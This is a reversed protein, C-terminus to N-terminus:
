RQQMVFKTRMYTVYALLLIASGSHSKCSCQPSDRRALTGCSIRANPLSIITVKWSCQASGRM